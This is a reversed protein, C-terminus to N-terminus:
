RGMVNLARTYVDSFSVNMGGCHMNDQAALFEDVLELELICDEPDEGTRIILRNGDPIAKEQLDGTRIVEGNVGGYWKADAAVILESTASDATIVIRRAEGVTWTGAWLKSAPHRAFSLEKVNAAPLWGRLYRGRERFWAYVRKGEVGGTVLRDGNSLFNDSESCSAAEACQYELLQVFRVQHGPPAVVRALGFYAQAPDPFDSTTAPQAAVAISSMLLLAPFRWHRVSITLM